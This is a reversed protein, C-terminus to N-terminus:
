ISFTYFIGRRLDHFFIEKESITLEYMDNTVTCKYYYIGIERNSVKNMIDTVVEKIKMDQHPSAPWKKIMSRVQSKNLKILKSVYFTKPFEFERKTGMKELTTNFLDEGAEYPFGMELYAQIHLIAVELYKKNQFNEYYFNLQEITKFFTEKVSLNKYQVSGIALKIAEIYRKTETNQM